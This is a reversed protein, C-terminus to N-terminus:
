HILITYRSKRVRQPKVGCFICGAISININKIKKKPIYRYIPLPTEKKYHQTAVIKEKKVTNNLKRRKPYQLKTPPERLRRKKLYFILIYKRLQSKM